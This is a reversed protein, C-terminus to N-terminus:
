VLLSVTNIVIYKDPSITFEAALRTRHRARHKVRQESYAIRYSM